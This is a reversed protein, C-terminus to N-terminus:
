QRLFQLEDLTFRFKDCITKFADWNQELYYYHALRLMLERIAGEVQLCSM